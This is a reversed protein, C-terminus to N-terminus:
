SRFYVYSYFIAVERMQVQGNGTM